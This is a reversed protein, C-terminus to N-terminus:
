VYSGLLEINCKPVFFTLDYIILSQLDSRKNYFDASNEISQLGSTSHDWAAPGALSFTREGIKNENSTQPVLSWQWIESRDRLCTLPCYYLIGYISVVDDLSWYYLIGYISVVHDLSWHYLIGYISVVHDLSWHYLIGYISV